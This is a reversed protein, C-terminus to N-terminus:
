FDIRNLEDYNRHLEYIAAPVDVPICNKFDDDECLSVECTGEQPIDLSGAELLFNHLMCYTKLISDAMDVSCM